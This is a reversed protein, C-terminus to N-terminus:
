TNPRNLYMTGAGSKTLGQSGAIIAFMDLRGTNIITPTGSTTAFEIRENTLDVYNAQTGSRIQVRGSGTNLNGLVINSLLSATGTTTFTATNNTGGAVIGGTWRATNNWASTGASSWTGSQAHVQAPIACVVLVALTALVISAIRRRVSTRPSVRIRLSSM